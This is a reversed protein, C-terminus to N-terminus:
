FECSFVQALATGSDGAVTNFFLSQCLHKGIFKSFNGLARKKCYAEQLSSRYCILRFIDLLILNFVRNRQYTKLLAYWNLNTSFEMVKNQTM